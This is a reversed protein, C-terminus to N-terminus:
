NRFSRSLTFAAVMLYARMAPSSAGTVQVYMWLVLLEPGASWRQPVRLGKRVFALALAIVGVHLGSISFVHFTGSRMYANQQDASLVAKEGLLMGLYLSAAQPRDALGQRLIAELRDQTRGCLVAFRTPPM